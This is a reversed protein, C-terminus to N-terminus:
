VFGLLSIVQFLLVFCVCLKAIRDDSESEWYFEVLQERFDSSPVLGCEDSCSNLM